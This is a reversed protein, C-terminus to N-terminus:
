MITCRCNCCKEQPEEIDTLYSENVDSLPTQESSFSSSALLRETLDSAKKNKGFFRSPSMETGHFQFAKNKKKSKSSSREASSPLYSYFSSETKNPQANTSVSNRAQMPNTSFRNKLIKFREDQQIEKLVSPTLPTTPSQSDSARDERETIFHSIVNEAYDLSKQQQLCLHHNQRISIIHKKYDLASGTLLADLSYPLLATEAIDISQFEVSHKKQKEPAAQMLIRDITLMDLNALHSAIEVSLPGCSVIAKPDKQIMSTSLFLNLKPKISNLKILEAYFGQHGTIGIPNIILLNTKTIVGALFHSQHGPENAIFAIQQAGLQRKLYLLSILQQTFTYPESLFVFKLTHATSIQSYFLMELDNSDYWTEFQCIHQTEQKQEQHEPLSSHSDM